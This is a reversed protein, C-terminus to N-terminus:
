KAFTVNQLKNRQIKKNYCIKRCIVLNTKM